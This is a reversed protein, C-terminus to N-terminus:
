VTVRTPFKPMITIMLVLGLSCVGMYKKRLWRDKKSIQEELTNVGLSKPTKTTSSLTIEKLPHMACNKKLQANTIVSIDM